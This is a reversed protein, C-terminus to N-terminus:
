QSIEGSSFNHRIIPIYISVSGPAPTWPQLTPTATEIYIGSTASMPPITQSTATEAQGALIALAAVVIVVAVIEFARNDRERSNWSAM